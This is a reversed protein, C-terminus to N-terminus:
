IPGEVEYVSYARIRNSFGVFVGVCAVFRVPTEVLEGGGSTLSVRLKKPPRPVVYHLMGVRGGVAVRELCLRLLKNPNPLNGKGEAYHEADAESYPPDVLIAPWADYGEPPPPLDERVDMVHDPELAPDLDVTVDNPGFGRFPYDTVKGSCVHLVPDYVSVGLLERARSLFGSPYAGYYKIKPRALIWMDCIPRYSM